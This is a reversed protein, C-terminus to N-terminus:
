GETAEGAGVPLLHVEFLLLMPWLGTLYQFLHSFTGRPVGPTGQPVEPDRPYGLTGRPVSTGCPPPMPWLAKLFRFYHQFMTLSTFVQGGM